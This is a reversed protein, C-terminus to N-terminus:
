VAPKLRRASRQVRRSAGIPYIADWDIMQPEPDPPEVLQFGRSRITSLSEGTARSLERELEAQTM